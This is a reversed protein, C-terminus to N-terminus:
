HLTRSRRARAGFAANAICIMHLMAGLPQTLYAVAVIFFWALAVAARGLYLHGLGPVLSLLAAVLPKPAGSSRRPVARIITGGCQKCYLADVVTPPEACQSCFRTQESEDPTSRLSPM